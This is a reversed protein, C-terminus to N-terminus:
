KTMREVVRDHRAKEEPEDGADHWKPPNTKLGSLAKITRDFELGWELYGLTEKPDLCELWTRFVFKLHQSQHGPLRWPGLDTPPVDFLGPIDLTATEGAPMNDLTGMAPDKPGVNGDVQWIDVDQGPVASAPPFAQENSPQWTARFSKLQVLRWRKCDGLTIVEFVKLYGEHKPKGPWTENNPLDQDYWKVRAKKEIEKSATLPATIVTPKADSGKTPGITVTTSTGKKEVTTPHGLTETSGKWAESEDANAPTAPLVAVASAVAIVFTFALDKILM